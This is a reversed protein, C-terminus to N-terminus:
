SKFHNISYVGLLCVKCLMQRFSEAIIFRTGPRAYYAADSGSDYM